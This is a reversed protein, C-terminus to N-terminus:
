GGDEAARAFILDEVASYLEDVTVEYKKAMLLAVVEIETGLEERKRNIEAIVEQRSSDTAGVIRNVIQIFLPVPNPRQLVKASPRFGIPVGVSRPDFTPELESDREIILDAKKANNIIERAETPSFWHLDMSVAMELDRRSLSRRGKRNFLFAILQKLESM